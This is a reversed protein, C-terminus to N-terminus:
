LGYGFGITFFDAVAFHTKMNLKAYWRNKLYYQIFVKNYIIGTDNPKGFLYIGLSGGVKLQDFNKIYASSMGLQFPKEEAFELAGNYFADIGSAWSHKINFQKNYHASINVVLYKNGLPVSNEKLGINAEIEIKRPSYPLISIISLSDELESEKEIFLRKGLYIHAYNLGFNPTQFSANSYHSLGIGVTIGGNLQNLEFSKEIRFQVNVNFHSGIATQIPNTYKSYIKQVFGIGIASKFVLPNKHFYFPISGFVDVYGEYGVLPLNGSNFFGLMIGYFPMKYPSHHFKHGTVRKTCVIEAGFSPGDQLHQVVEKHPTFIGGAVNTSISKGGVYQCNVNQYFFLLTSSLLLTYTLIRM